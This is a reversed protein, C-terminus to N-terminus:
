KGMSILNVFLRYAGPVGAPLQRFWSIGSYIYYGDGYKAYIIGGDLPASGPDASSIITEYRKDWNAPFYLGREQVWGDFDRSTIKNPSHLVPSGPNLIRVEADEVSVRDRSVEFPYPGLERLLLESNTNYQVILNGGGKVYDLLIKQKAALTSRTNYARVGLIVADFRKLVLPDIDKDELITVQYGVEQLAQPVADGAGHIYGIERGKTKLDLRVVKAKSAPFYVQKPIHDYAIIGLGRDYEVGDMEAIAAIESTMDGQPPTVLFDIRANDGKRDLTFKEAAPTANWGAPLKLRVQGRCNDRAATVTVSIKRASGDKFMYVDNGMATYVPPSIVLPEYVEGRVPDRKKYVVPVEYNLLEGGVRLQMRIVAPPENEPRGIKLQDSVEFLGEYGIDRKLWYPQSIEQQTPVVTQIDLRVPENPLLPRNVSSDKRAFPGNISIVAVERESRNIAELAVSIPEGPTYVSSEAVAELYLGLLDRILQDVEELKVKKWHPDKLMLIERRLSLLDPVSGAPNAVDFGKKLKEILGPIKGGGKVRSWGTDIGEMLSNAPKDGKVFQFYEVDVGRRGVAGFGQSKHMSRSRAAIEGYSAGLLPNYKGIDLQIYNRANKIFEERNRVAWLGINWLLRKPKWVEVYKLQEPFRRPDGAADFAEEALLASATHHGHGAREDPPFRTIIIDPRTSRIVWVADALVAERDWVKMTEDPNKSYGFDNARSFLQKGGDIRRAQLLEQTRIMGLLERMEPGILNQGGDGRTLSLYYTQYKEENAMYAIFGTNEDDPHAAFYLVTGLVNLKEIKHLIESSSPQRPPMAWGSLVTMVCLCAYSIGSFKLKM